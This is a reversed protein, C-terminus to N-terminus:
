HAHIGKKQGRCNGPVIACVKPFLRDNYGKQLPSDVVFQALYDSPRAVRKGMSDIRGSGFRM